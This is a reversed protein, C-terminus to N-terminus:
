AGPTAVVIMTFSARVESLLADNIEATGTVRLPAAASASRFLAIGMEGGSPDHSLRYLIGDFGHEHFAAAWRQCIEYNPDSHIAATVGYGRAASTTCDALRWERTPEITTLRRLEVEALPILTTRFVELVAGVATVALYLTAHPPQLDFRGDGSNSFYVPDNAARHIRYLTRSWLSVPFRVLNAPPESLPV